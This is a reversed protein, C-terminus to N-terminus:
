LVIGIFCLLLLLLLLLLLVFSYILIYKKELGGIVRDIAQEFDM